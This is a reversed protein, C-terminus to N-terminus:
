ASCSPRTGVSIGVERQLVGLRPARSQWSLRQFVALYLTLVALQTGRGSDTPVDAHVMNLDGLGGSSWPGAWPAFTAQAAASRAPSFAFTAPIPAPVDASGLKLTTLLALVASFAALAWQGRSGLGRTQTMTEAHVQTGGPPGIPPTHTTLCRTTLRQSLSWPGLGKTFGSNSHRAHSM